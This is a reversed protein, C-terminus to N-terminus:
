RADWVLGYILVLLSAVATAGRVLSLNVTPYVVFDLFLLVNNLTLGFFCIASWLLLPARRRVYQRTLLVACGLSTLSCLLYVAEAM